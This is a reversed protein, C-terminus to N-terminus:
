DKYYTELQRRGRVLRTRVTGEPIRLIQAIEKTRFGEMYFLVIVIRYKEDLTNMAEEWILNDQEITERSDNPIEDVLIERKRDRLFSYCKNVLIRILWAKFKEPKHLGGIKVWATLITEQIIDAVDEDNKLISKSVKYLDQMYDYIVSGFAESDKNMAKRILLEDTM